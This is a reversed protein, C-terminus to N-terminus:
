PTTNELQEVIRTKPGSMAKGEVREWVSRLAALMAQAQEKTDFELDIMVYKQNDV